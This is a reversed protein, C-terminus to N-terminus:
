SIYYIPLMYLCLLIDLTFIAQLKGCDDKIFLSFTSYVNFKKYFKLFSGDFGEM